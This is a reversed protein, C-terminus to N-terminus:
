NLLDLNSRTMQNWKGVLKGANKNREEMILTQSKVQYIIITFTLLCFLFITARLLM